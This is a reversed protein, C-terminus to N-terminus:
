DCCLRADKVVVPCTAHIFAAPQSHCLDIPSKLRTQCHQLFDIALGSVVAACFRGWILAPAKRRCASIVNAYSSFCVQYSIVFTLPLNEKFSVAETEPPLSPPLSTTAEWTRCTTLGKCTWKELPLLLDSSIGFWSVNTRSGRRGGASGSVPSLLCPFIYKIIIQQVYVNGIMWKGGVLDKWQNNAPGLQHHGTTNVTKGPPCWTLKWLWCRTKGPSSWDQSEGFLMGGWTFLPSRM